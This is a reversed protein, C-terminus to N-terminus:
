KYLVEMITNNGKDKALRMANDIERMVGSLDVSDELNCHLLGISVTVQLDEGQWHFRYEEISKQIETARTRGITLDCRMHVVFEDGGYRSVIDENRMANNLISSLQILIGDGAAHGYKDNIKKFDDVDLLLICLSDIDSSRRSLANKLSNEFHRRNSLRTLYDSDVLDVLQHNAEKLQATADDVRQKLSTNLKTVESRSGQLGTVLDHMAMNLENIEQPAHHEKAPMNGVYNNEKLKRSAYVLRNIPVTIWRALATSVLLALLLGVLGWGFQSALLSHVRSEVEEKPQPVMVGWGYAPVTTYGAVMSKKIFTSYFEMVGTEGNLMNKVIQWHSLDQMSSMWEPNPHAIVKGTNDVIASHGQVGFKINKRLKEILYISLEAVLVHTVKNKKNRVPQTLLITPRGDIPSAQIGSLSWRNKDRAFLFSPENIYKATKKGPMDGNYVQLLANGKKDVLALSRFDKLHKQSDELGIFKQKNDATEDLDSLSVALLMLMSRHDNIYIEIPLTLNLALLRHKEYIERWADDWATNYLKVGLVSVPILAVLIFSLVLIKNVPQTLLTSKMKKMIIKEINIKYYHYKKNEYAYRGTLLM